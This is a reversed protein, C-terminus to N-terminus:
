KKQIEIVADPIGFLRNWQRQSNEQIQMMLPLMVRMRETRRAQEYRRREEQERNIEDVTKRWREARLYFFESPRIEDHRLKDLLVMDYASLENWVASYEPMFRNMLSWWGSFFEDLTMSKEKLKQLSDQEYRNQADRFEAVMKEIQEAQDLRRAEEISVLVGDRVTCAPLAMLVLFVLVMRKMYM